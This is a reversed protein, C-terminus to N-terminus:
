SQNGQSRSIKIDSHVLVEIEVGFDSCFELYTIEGKFSRSEREAPFDVRMALPKRSDQYKMVATLDTDGVGMVFRFSGCDCNKTSKINGIFKSKMYLKIAEDSGRVETLM